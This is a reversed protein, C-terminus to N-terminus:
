RWLAGGAGSPAATDLVAAPQGLPLSVTTTGNQPEATALTEPAARPTRQEFTVLLQRRGEIAAPDMPDIRLAVDYASLADEPQDLEILVEALGVAAVMNDPDVELAAALLTAAQAAAGHRAALLGWGTLPDGSWPYAEQARQYLAAAMQDDGRAEAAQALAVMAAPTELLSDSARAPRIDISTAFLAVLFTGLILISRAM